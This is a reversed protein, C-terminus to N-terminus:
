TKHIEDALMLLSECLSELQRATRRRDDPAAGRVLSRIETGPMRLYREIVHHCNAVAASVARFRELPSMRAGVRLERSVAQRHVFTRAEALSMRRSMIQRMTQVQMALPLPVLLLALSLTMKGRRRRQAKTLKAEEGAVKLQELVEPDLRQLLAYQHVWTSTKGFISAIETNTRGSEKLTLVAESIEVADHPQRCFNAAVSRVYHVDDDGGDGNGAMVARVPMKGLLCARLRREGDVLEADYDREKSPVVVIPTVQGVVRISEALKSIGRFRKRPNRAFPKVRKPDLEVVADIAQM